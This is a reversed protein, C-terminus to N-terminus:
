LTYYFYVHAAFVGSTYICLLDPVPPLVQM